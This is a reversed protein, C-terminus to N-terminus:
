HLAVSRTRGRFNIAAPGRRLQLPKLLKPRIWFVQGDHLEVKWRHSDAGYAQLVGQAGNTGKNKVLGELRVQDHVHLIPEGSNFAEAEAASMEARGDESVLWSDLRRVAVKAAQPSLGMEVLRELAACHHRMPTDDEPKAASASSEAQPHGPAPGPVHAPHGVPHKSGGFWSPRTFKSFHEKMDKFVENMSDGVEKLAEETKKGASKHGDGSGTRARM